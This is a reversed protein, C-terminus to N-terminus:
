DNMRAVHVKVVSCLRHALNTVTKPGYSQAGELIASPLFGLAYVHSAHSAQQGQTRNALM